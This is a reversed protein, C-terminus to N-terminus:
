EGVVVKAFRIVRDKLKYGKEITDMVKGKQEEEEVPISTIAEHFESDFEKGTSVIPELGIKSLTKKMSNDVLAIGEKVATLNDTKEIADLTRDFNDLVPLITRLLDQNAFRIRDTLEKEKRKRFNAFEAQLRLAKDKHEDREAHTARLQGQLDAIVQIAEDLSAFDLDNEKQNDTSEAQEKSDQETSEQSDQALTEEQDQATHKDLDAQEKQDKLEEKM